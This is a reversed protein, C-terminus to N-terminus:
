LDITKINLNGNRTTTFEVSIRRAQIYENLLSLAKKSAKVGNIYILKMKAGRGTL